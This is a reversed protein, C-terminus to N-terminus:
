SAIWIIAFQKMAVVKNDNCTDIVYVNFMYYRGEKLALPRTTTIGSTPASSNRTRKTSNNYVLWDASTLGREDVAIMKEALTPSLQSIRHKHVSVLLGGTANYRTQTTCAFVGEDTAEVGYALETISSNASTPEEALALTQRTLHGFSDYEFLSPATPYSGSESSSFIKM